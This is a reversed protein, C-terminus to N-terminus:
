LFDIIDYFIYVPEFTLSKKPVSILSQNELPDGAMIVTGEEFFDEVPIWTRDQAAEVVNRWLSISNLGVFGSEQADNVEILIWRGDATKALDIAPFM